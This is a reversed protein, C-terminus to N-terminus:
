SPLFFRLLATSLIAVAFVVLFGRRLLLAVVGVGVGAATHWDVAYRRGGDVLQVVVLASLMAVPLLGAVRQVRPHHLVSEPLSLGVLKTLYAGVAAVVVAVWLATM